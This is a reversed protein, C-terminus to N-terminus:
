LNYPKRDPFLLQVGVEGEPFLQVGGGGPFHQVGELVKFFTLKRQFNVMQSSYFLSLITFFFYFFIGSWGGGGGHRFNRSGHMTHTSYVYRSLISLMEVQALDSSM